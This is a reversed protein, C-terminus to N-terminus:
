KTQVIKCFHIKDEYLVYLPEKNSNFKNQHILGQHPDLTDWRCREEPKGGVGVLNYTLQYIPVGLINALCYLECESMHFSYLSEDSKLFKQFEASNPVTKQVTQNRMRVKVQLPFTYYPEYWQWWELLKNHCYRRLEQWSEQGLGTHQGAARYLSPGGGANTELKCPFNVLSKLYAPLETFQPVKSQPPQQQPTAARTKMQQQQKVALQQRAQPTNGALQPRPHRQPTAQRTQSVQQRPQPTAQRTQSSPQIGRVQPTQQRPTATQIRSSQPTQARPTGSQSQQRVQQVQASPKGSSAPPAPQRAGSQPVPQRPNSQPTTQKIVTSQPTKQRPNSQPTGQRSADTTSQPTQQNQQRTQPTGQQVARAQSQPTPQKQQGQPTKQNQSSGVSQRGQPTSDRSQGQPTQKQNQQSVQAQQQRGQPTQQRTRQQVASPKSQPPTMSQATTASKTATVQAPKATVIAPKTAEQVIKTSGQSNPAQQKQNTKLEVPTITAKTTSVSTVNPKTPLPPKTANSPPKSKSEEVKPQTKHDSQIKIIASKYGNLVSKGLNKEKQLNQLFKEITAAPAKMPDVVAASKTCFEKFLEFRTDYLKQTSSKISDDKANNASTSKIEPKVEKVDEDIKVISVTRGPATNVKTKDNKIEKVPSDLNIVESVNAEIKKNGSNKSSDADQKEQKKSMPVIKDSKKPVDPTEDLTTSVPEKVKHANKIHTQLDNNSLFVSKCQSCKFSEKAAAVSRRTKKPSKRAEDNEENKKVDVDPQYDDDENKNKKRGKKKVEVAEVEDESDTSDKATTAARKRKLEKAKVEKAKNKEDMEKKTAEELTVEEEEEADPFKKANEPRCELGPIDEEMYLLQFYAQVEAWEKYRRGQPCIWNTCKKSHDTAHGKTCVQKWGDPLVSGMRHLSFL